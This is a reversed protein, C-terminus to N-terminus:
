QNRELEEKARDVLNRDDGAAIIKNLADIYEQKERSRMGGHHALNVIARGAASRLAPQDLYPTLLKLTEFRRIEGARELAFVKDADRELTELARGVVMLKRPDPLKSERATAVRVAARLLMAQEAADKASEAVALLDDVASEDPWNSLARVAARRLADDAGLAARVTELARKGGIRGIAPLLLAKGAADAQQYAKIVPEAQADANDIRQCVFMVARELEDRLENRAHLLLGIVAEAHEPQALKGLSRIATRALSVNDSNALVLAVPVLEPAGRADLLEVLTQKGAPEATKELLGVLSQNVGSGPLRILSERAVGDPDNTAAIHFLMAALSENGLDGIARVATKRVQLDDSQALHLAIPLAAKEGRAALVALLAAAAQPPLQRGDRALAALQTPPLDAVATLAVARADADDGNIAGLIMSAAGEGATRIAGALAALRVSRQPVGLYRQYIAAADSAKGASALREACKMHSEATLVILEKPPQWGALAATAEVSALDGLAAVAARKVRLDDHRLMSGILAASAADRRAGLALILAARFEPSTEKEAAARLAAAAADSPNAQLARRASERLLPDNGAVLKSLVPVVEERGANNFLQLLWLKQPVSTKVDDIAAAAALCCAAREAEAGPRAAYHILPEIRKLSDGENQKALELAEALASRYADRLQEASANPAVSIPPKARKEAASSRDSCLVAIAVVAITVPLITRM